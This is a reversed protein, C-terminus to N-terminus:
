TGNIEYNNISLDKAINTTFSKSVFWDTNKKEVSGALTMSVSILSILITSYLFFNFYFKASKNM